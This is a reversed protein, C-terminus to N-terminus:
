PQARRYEEIRAVARAVDPEGYIVYRGDIVVAPVTSVSLSWADVVGQYASALDRQLRTGGQKLREQVITQARQPDTPLDAALSAEIEQAADLRVVNANDASTLTASRDTFVTVEAASAAQSALGLAVCLASAVASPFRIPGSQTRFPNLM